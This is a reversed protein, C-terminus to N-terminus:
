INKTLLFVFNDEEIEINRFTLVNKVTTMRQLALM